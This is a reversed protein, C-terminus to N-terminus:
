KSIAGVYVLGFGEQTRQDGINTYLLCDLIADTKESNIIRFYYVSGAPVARYTGKPRGQAVDWGGVTTYNGVAATILEIDEHLETPCWGEEFIAPTALYLKFQGSDHVMDRIASCDDASIPDTKQSTVKYTFGKGEGGLKILASKPLQGIGDVDVVFGFESDSFRKM